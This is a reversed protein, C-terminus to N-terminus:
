NERKDNYFIHLESNNSIVRMDQLQRFSEFSELMDEFDFDANIVIWDIYDDLDQHEEHYKYHKVLQEISEFEEIAPSILDVLQNYKMTSTLPVERLLEGNEKIIEIYKMAEQEDLDFWSGYAIKDGGILEEVYNIVISVQNTNFATSYTLTYIDLNSYEDIIQESIIEYNRM